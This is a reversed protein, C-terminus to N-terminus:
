EENTEGKKKFRGLMIAIILSSAALVLNMGYWSILFGGKLKLDGIIILYLSLTIVISFISIIIGKQYNNQNKEVIASIESVSKTVKDAISKAIFRTPEVEYAFHTPKGEIPTLVSSELKTLLEKYLNAPLPLDENIIKPYIVKFLCIGAIITIFVVNLVVPLLIEKFQVNRIIAMGEDNFNMASFMLSISFTLIALLISANQQMQSVRHWQTQYKHFSFDGVVSQLYTYIQEKGKEM